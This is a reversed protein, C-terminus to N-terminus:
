GDLRPLRFSFTGVDVSDFEVFGYSVSWEREKDRVLLVRRISGRPAGFASIPKNTPLLGSPGRTPPAAVLQLAVRLLDVATDSGGLGSLLLVSSPEHTALATGRELMAEPSYQHVPRHYSRLQTYVRHDRDLYRPSQDRPRGLIPHQYIEGEELEEPADPMLQDVIERTDDPNAEEQLADHMEEEITPVVDPRKSAPDPQQIVINPSPIALTQINAASDRRQALFAQSPEPQIRHWGPQLQDQPHLSEYGEFIDRINDDIQQEEEPLLQKPSGTPLSSDSWDIEDDYM